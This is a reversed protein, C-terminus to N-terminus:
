CQLAAFLYLRRVSQGLVDVAERLLRDQRSLVEATAKEMPGRCLTPPSEFPVCIESAKEVLALGVRTSM